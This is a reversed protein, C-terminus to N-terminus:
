KAGPVTIGRAGEPANGRPMFDELPSWSNSVGTLIRGDCTVHQEEVSSSAALTDADFARFNRFVKTEAYGARRGSLREVDKATLIRESYRDASVDPPAKSWALSESRMEQLRKLCEDFSGFTYPGVPSAPEHVSALVAPAALLGALFLPIAVYVRVFRVKRHMSM